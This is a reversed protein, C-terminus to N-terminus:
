KCSIDRGNSCVPTESVGSNTNLSKIKYSDFFNNMVEKVADNKAANKSCVIILNESNEM